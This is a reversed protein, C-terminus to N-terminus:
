EMSMDIVIKVEDGDMLRQLGEKFDKLAIKQTVVVEPHVLGKEMLELSLDWSSPKQTRSGIYTVERQIIADQDMPNEKKGFMGLQVFTGKKRILRLAQNVAPIFGSCDVVMTPGNGDTEESVVTELTEVDVNITRHVGMKEAIDLRKSDKTIGTIMVKAGCAMAVQASLLGMTGPGLILVIDQNTVTTKELLGHVCCALPETLSASLLTITDAVKHVSEERSLVYEALGGDAQTGLGKRHDCLNYDKTQCYICSGCTEFTTESTVRDGVKFKTVDPGIETVIGSFEHGLVVPPKNSAYEGKFTHIDSGCIGAYAVKIKVRDGYVKPEEVDMYEIQDYGEKTKVIAKM